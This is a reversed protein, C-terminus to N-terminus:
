KTLKVMTFDPDPGIAHRVINQFKERHVYVKVREYTPLVALDDLVIQEAKAMLDMRKKADSTAMSERVLKDYEPSNYRGRNNENWSTKLEIFTLPDPFDPGWGASVIDFDGATMKALRQKFIQRDIRLEIGLTTKLLNQFYEAERGTLPTDGTLWALTVQNVGLEKKALEMYKKAQALDPKVATVPHEKRFTNKVGKVWTPVLSYAPLTGPISVIKPIFENLNLVTQIAKRLNKNRTLRGERFNFELFFVSGDSFSKMRYGEKQAKPLDDKGLTSLIDTKGDKYFNFRASNDPTMYPVEIVDLDGLSKNWYHPNREMRLSAGHVWSTLVYPGNSILDKADAGYRGKHENYFDERIPMYVAFSTLSIFYGCPKEFTVELTHDDKAVAGLATGPMKGKNIAEANIIPYFIFGYESANKPDLATQWAFVFDQARVPKGDAWKANKRLNFTAGKADIKWKEAVGAVPDGNAGYRTLGEMLHGIVFFSEEDTALTSNLQPPEGQMAYAVKRQPEIQAFAVLPGVLLLAWFFAFVLLTRKM